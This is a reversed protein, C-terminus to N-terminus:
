DLRPMSAALAALEAISRAETRELAQRVQTRVTALSVGRAAAIEAPSRGRGLAATVEAAAETLGYLGALKAPLGSDQADPDSIVVLARTTEGASLPTVLVRLPAGRPRPVALVAGNAGRRGCAEAVARVFRRQAPESAFGFGGRRLAVGDGSALLAHAAGNAFFPEGEADLILIADQSKDLAAEALAARRAAVGVQRRVEMARALHPVLPDLKAVETATFETANGLGRHLGITGLAGGVDFLAGVCHVTDDGMRRFYENYFTSNLFEDFKLLESVNRAKNRIGSREGAIRWIDHRHMGTELYLAVQEGSWYNFSMDEVDGDPSFQHIVASRAGIAGAVVAPLGEFAEEGTAADYIAAIVEDM